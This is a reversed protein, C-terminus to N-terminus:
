LTYLSLYTNTDFCKDKPEDFTPYPPNVKINVFAKIDSLNFLIM